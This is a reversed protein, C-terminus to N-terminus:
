RGLAIVRVEPGRFGDPFRALYSHAALVAEEKRGEELLALIQLYALDEPAVGSEATAAQPPSAGAASSKARRGHAPPAARAPDSKSFDEPIMAAAQPVRVMAPEDGAVVEKRAATAVAPVGTVEFRPPVRTSARADLRPRFVLSGALIAPLAVAVVFKARIGSAAPSKMAADASALLRQRLRRLSLDDLQPRDTRRVLQAVTEM